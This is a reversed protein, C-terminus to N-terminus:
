ASPPDQHIIYQTNEDFEMLADYQMQTGAWFKINPEGANQNIVADPVVLESITDILDGVSFNATSGDESKTGLLKDGNDLNADVPRTSIRAM